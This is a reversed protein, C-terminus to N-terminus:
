NQEYPYLKNNKLVYFKICFVGKSDIANILLIPNQISVKEDNAINIMSNIDIDSPIPTSDPHTHWEGFYRHEGLSEEYIKKLKKNIDKSFRKFYSTSNVYKKPTIIGLILITKKDESLEGWFIGGFEKPYHSISLSNIEVLLRNDIEIHIDFIPQTFSYKM